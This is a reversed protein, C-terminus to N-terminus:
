NRQTELDHQDGNIYKNWKLKNKNFMLNRIYQLRGDKENGDSEILIASNDTLYWVILYIVYDM